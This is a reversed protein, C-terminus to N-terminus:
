AQWLPPTAATKGEPFALSKRVPKALNSIPTCPLVKQSKLLGAIINQHISNPFMWTLYFM